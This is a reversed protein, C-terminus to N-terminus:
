KKGPILKKLADEAKKTADEVVKEAQKTATDLAKTAKTVGLDALKNLSGSLDGLVNEPLIGGGNTVVASLVAEVVVQALQATTLGGSANGVNELEIKSIPVKVAVGSVSVSADINTLTLSRVIFKKESGSPTTPQPTGSKLRALNDLIVKYNMKGPDGELRVAVNSIAVSPIEIVPNGLTQINLTGASSGVTMFKPSPFGPPNAVALDSLTAAGKTLQVDASGLTTQVGLAYTGGTEVATKVVKNVNSLAVVFLGVVGLILLVVVIAIIKIAKKM